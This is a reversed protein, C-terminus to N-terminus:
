GGLDPHLAGTPELWIHANAAEDLLHEAEAIEPILERLLASTGVL